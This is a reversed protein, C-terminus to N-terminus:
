KGFTVANYEEISIGQRDANRRYQHAFVMGIKEATEKLM